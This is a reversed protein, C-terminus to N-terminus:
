YFQFVYDDIPKPEGSNFVAEYDYLMLNEIGLKEAVLKRIESIKPVIYKVINERLKEVEAQSYSIRNMNIYGLKIYNEFGLKKAMQTRIKVLEDFNNDIFDAHRELELGFATFAAKRVERDDSAMYKKLLTLPLKEGNFDILLSSFFNSYSDVKEAELIMNYATRTKISGGVNLGEYKVLITASNEDTMNNLKIIPTSGIAELINNYVM